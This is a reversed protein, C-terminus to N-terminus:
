RGAYCHITGDKAALYLRGNAAAMGDFVPPADLDYEAIEKGDTTSVAMLIGGKEGKWAALAATPNKLQLAEEGRTGETEIVDPPGAIFMIENAVVMARVLLPPQTTWRYQLAPQSRKTKQRRRGKAAAPKEPQPGEIRPKSNRDYAFLQYKEGGRWQGTNGGYYQDRGFGYVTSKDYSLIRGSPAVGGIKTWSSWHSIFEDHVVWYARHWWTDDLFGLPTFLHVGKGTEDGTEFNLKVHRMYVDEGDALLVDSLVGRVDRGGGSPQKGTEPDPSYIATESLKRGTAPELRYVRIGGDLYSSRGAVFILKDDKVLVSGHIPWVSELQGDIFVRRDEPAGRFRWAFAGDSARVAYMWGDASGFLAMGRYITPPSDVRGGATYRWLTKGDNDNVAYVTHTDISAVFVKGDAAVVSSLRGGLTAEWAPELDPSVATGSMGCRDPAGRYTPWENRNQVKSKPNQIQENYAPGKELRPDNRRKSVPQRDAALACFGNIKTKMNCVCSDPTVYLLGNAPMVGYQCTGRIWHDDWIEGTRIDVFQVGPEGLMIFRDTAKNRYCRPHMYGKLTPLERRLSGTLPDLGERQGKGRTWVLGDILFVDAPSNYGSSSTGTWLPKGDNPSFARVKKFDGVYVAKEDVVLTPAEWQTEGSAAKGKPIPLEPTLPTSWCERGTKLDRCFVRGPTQGFLRDGQMAMCPFILEDVKEDWVINGTDAEANLIRCHHAIYEGRRRAADIEEMRNVENDVLLVLTGDRHLIQKTRESREITRLSKGTAADLVSVPAEFDLTIFVRTDDAVLRWPLSAPGSRFRRLPNAWPGVPRKWLVVGSFADRAVLFWESPFRIDARPAEDLIYFLRGGATVCASLSALQEHARAFRPQGIWRLYRPPGVRADHAVANNDPGHLFHTWDDIEKPRPKVTKEWARGNRIYAVGNPCLVRRVEDMSVRGLDESVILNVLNDAYPLHAGAIRDISVPGYMGLSRIHERAEHVNKADADLGHVLYSDSVRLAATLKGDGCGVHVVLGGKVGTAALIRPAQDASLRDSRGAASFAPGAAM